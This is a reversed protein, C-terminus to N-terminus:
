KAPEWNNPDQWNGGKFRMGTTPNVFGPYIETTQKQQAPQAATQNNESARAKEVASKYSEPIDAATLPQTM